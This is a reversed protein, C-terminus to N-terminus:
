MAEGKWGTETYARHLCYLLSFIKEAGRGGYRLELNSTCGALTENWSTM